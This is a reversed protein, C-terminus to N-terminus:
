LNPVMYTNIILKLADFAEDQRLTPTVFHRVVFMYRQKLRTLM